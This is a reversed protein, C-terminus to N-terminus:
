RYWHYFEGVSTAHLAEATARAREADRSGIIVPYGAAAWRMALGRGEHGTGGLVAITAKMIFSHGTRAIRQPLALTQGCSQKERQGRAAFPLLSRGATDSVAPDDQIVRRTLDPM